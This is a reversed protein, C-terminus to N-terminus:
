EKEFIGQQGKSLETDRVISYSCLIKFLKENKRLQSDVQQLVKNFLTASREKIITAPYLYWWSQKGLSYDGFDLHHLVTHLRNYVVGLKPLNDWNRRM